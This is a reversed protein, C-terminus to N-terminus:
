FWVRLILVVVSVAAPNLKQGLLLLLSPGGGMSVCVDVAEKREEKKEEGKLGGVFMRVTLKAAAEQLIGEGGGDHALKQLLQLMRLLEVSEPEWVFSATEVVRMVRSVVSSIQNADGGSSELAAMVTSRWIETWIKRDESLTRSSSGSGSSSSSSSSRKSSRTSRSSSTSGSSRKRGGVGTTVTVDLIKETPLLIIGLRELFYLLYRTQGQDYLTKLCRTWMGPIMHEFSGPRRKCLSLLFLLSLLSLTTPSSLLFPLLFPIPSSFFFLVVVCFHSSLILHKIQLVFVYVLVVVVMKVVFSVEEGRGVNFWGDSARM